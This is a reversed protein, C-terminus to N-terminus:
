FKAKAYGTMQQLGLERGLATLPHVVVLGRVTKKLKGLDAQEVKSLPRNFALAQIDQAQQSLQQDQKANLSEIRKELDAIETNCKAVVAIDKRKEAAALTHRCKDLRNKFKQLQQKPTM